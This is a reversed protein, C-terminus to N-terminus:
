TSKERLRKNEELAEKAWHAFKCAYMKHIRAAFYYHITTLAFVGALIWTGWWEWLVIPLPKTLFNEM